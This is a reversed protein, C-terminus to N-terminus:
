AARSAPRTACLESPRTLAFGAARILDPLEPRRFLVLESVRRHVYEDDAVADRGVLTLDHYGPHCMLEVARGPTHELWRAHFRADTVFPPDTVGALWDCGPFGARDLDRAQRRGLANLVVRKVRAGPVRALLRWPERVRRVFPREPRAALFDFLVRLMPRFLSAHQHSNVLRPPAGALEVFRRHQAALEAAVEAPNMRGLLSRRMFAGLPWFTGDSRVLSPVRAAPLIPQDLTLNPHWGLDLPRGARNWATVAAPAHPSNVLLTTGTVLGAAALELIGRDTDPGIGFDDAIVVLQRSLGM